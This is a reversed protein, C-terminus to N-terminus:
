RGSMGLFQPKRAILEERPSLSRLWRRFKPASYFARRPM